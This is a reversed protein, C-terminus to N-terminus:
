KTGSVVDAKKGDHVVLKSAKFFLRFAPENVSSEGTGPATNKSSIGMLTDKVM